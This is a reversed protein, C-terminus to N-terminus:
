SYRLTVQHYNICDELVHRVEVLDVTNGLGIVDFELLFLNKIMLLAQTSLAEAKFKGNEIPVLLHELEEPSLVSKEPIKSM